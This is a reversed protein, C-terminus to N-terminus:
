KKAEKEEKKEGGKKETDSEKSAQATAKEEEAAEKVEESVAEGVPEDLEADLEEVTKPALVSCVITEDNELVEIKSRDIPLDRVHVSAHIEVLGSIDVKIDHVLDGPLCRIEIENKNHALTGGLDKVAPSVGEFKLSARTHIKKNMDVRLFDIHEFANTVPNYTVDHILVKQASPEGDVALDILSSEGAERFVKRFHQYDLELHLNEQSVGYCVAPIKREARLLRSKTALDRKQASLAYTTTAM